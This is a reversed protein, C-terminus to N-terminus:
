VNWEFIHNSAERTQRRKIKLKRQLHVDCPFLKLCDANGLGFAAAKLSELISTYSKKPTVKSSLWSLGLGWVPIWLRQNDKLERSYKNNECIANWLCKGNDQDAIQVADISLLIKRSLENMYLMAIPEASRRKRRVEETSADILLEAPEEGGGGGMDTMPMMMMGTDPKTMTICMLVQLIFMGFSLFALTTLAIDFLDKLGMEKSGKDYGADGYHEYGIKNGAVHNVSHTHHNHLNDLMPNMHSPMGDNSNQLMVGPHQMAYGTVDGEEYENEDNKDQRRALKNTLLTSSILSNNSPTPAMMIHRYIDDMTATKTLWDKYGTSGQDYRMSDQIDSTKISRSVKRDSETSNSTTTAAFGLRSQFHTPAVESLIQEALFNSCLYEKMMKRHFGMTSYANNFTGDYSSEFTGTDNDLTRFESQFKQEPLNTEMFFLSAPMLKESLIDNLDIVSNDDTMGAPHSFKVNALVVIVVTGINRLLTM